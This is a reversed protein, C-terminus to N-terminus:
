KGKAVMYLVACGGALLMLNSTSRPELTLGAYITIISAGILIFNRALFVPYSVPIAANAIANIIRQM